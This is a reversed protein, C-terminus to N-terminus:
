RSLLRVPGILGSEPLPQAPPPRAGAPLVSAEGLVRKDAPMVRDGTLRNTWENTVKIEIVNDGPRLAGSVDLEYPPHWLLGLSRGNITVEALDGVRGLDLTLAAGDRFWERPAQISKTYTATGSFYKVGDDPQASWPVLKALHLNPPAGLNAEFRVEWNEDLTALAAPTKAPATVWDNQGASRRFVVFVSEHGALRLPVITRDGTIRYSAPEIKGSDPHWIEVERGAVRFRADFV